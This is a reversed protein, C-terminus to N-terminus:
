LSKRNISMYHPFSPPVASVLTTVAREGQIVKLLTKRLFSLWVQDPNKIGKQKQATQIAKIADVNVSLKLRDDSNSIRVYGVLIRNEEEDYPSDGFDTVTLENKSPIKSKVSYYSQNDTTTYKTAKDLEGRFILRGTYFDIWGVTFTGDEDESVLPEYDNTKM